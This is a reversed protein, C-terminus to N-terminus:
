NYIIKAFTAMGARSCDSASRMLVPAVMPDDMTDDMTDDMPDYDPDTDV